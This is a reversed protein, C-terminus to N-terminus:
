SLSSRVAHGKLKIGAGRKVPTDPLQASFLALHHHPTGRPKSLKLANNLDYINVNRRGATKIKRERGSGM